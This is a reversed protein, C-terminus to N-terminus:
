QIGRTHLPKEVRILRWGSESVGRRVKDERSHQNNFDGPFTCHVGLGLLESALLSLAIAIACGCACLVTTRSSRAGQGCAHM